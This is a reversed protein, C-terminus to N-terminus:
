LGQKKRLNELRQLLPPHSYNFFVYLPHPNLNSLNKLSLKKLASALKEPDHNEAAFNDAEFEHRRSLINMLLGTVLSVPSYLIGFTVMGIHFNPDEVGLARSLERNKVFVSFLFLMIGAQLLGLFLGTIVHKKRYHGTEHALVAVLEATEMEEILTDYLVIRKKHGLGTFYANAKTSRKSGNIVFINDLKFDTKGAFEEIASRLEGEPLPTQKNFLPVILNSYFMTMFLSFIAFVILALWWFRDGTMGYIWIILSMLGGGIIAGILLSKIKDTVFVEPTTKNFGFKQEIHFTDYVSFPINLLDAAVLIVGFFLLAWLIPNQTVSGTLDNVIAFGSLFLMALVLLMNFGSTWVSFKHNEQLYDLHKRYQEENIVEKFAPPTKKKSHRINVYELYRDFLYDASIIVVIVYFLTTYMTFLNGAFIISNGRSDNNVFLNIFGERNRSAGESLRINKYSNFCSKM